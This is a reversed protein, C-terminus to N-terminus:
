KWREQILLNFSPHSVWSSLFRFPGISRPMITSEKSTLLPRHNSKLRTLYYVVIALFLWFWEFNDIARGLREFISGRRWTFQPGKFGLDRLANLQIFDQFLKCGFIAPRGGRKEDPSLFANFDGILM